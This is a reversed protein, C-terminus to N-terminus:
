SNTKVYIDWRNVPGELAYSPTPGMSAEVSERGLQDASKPRKVVVRERVARFSSLLLSEEQKLRERHQVDQSGLLGHLIQM